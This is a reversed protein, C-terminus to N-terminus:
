LVQTLRINFENLVDESQQKLVKKIPANPCKKWGFLRDVQLFLSVLFLCKIEIIFPPSLPLVLLFHM